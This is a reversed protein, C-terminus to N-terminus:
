DRLNRHARGYDDDDLCAEELTGYYEDCRVYRRDWERSKAMRASPPAACATTVRGLKAWRSDHDADHAHGVIFRSPPSSCCLKLSTEVQWPGICAAARIGVVPAFVQREPWGCRPSPPPERRASLKSNRGEFNGDKEQAMRSPSLALKDRLGRVSARSGQAQGQRRQNPPGTADRTWSVTALWSHTVVM